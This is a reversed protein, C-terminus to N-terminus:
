SAYYWADREGEPTDRLRHLIDSALQKSDIPPDLPLGNSQAFNALALLNVGHWAYQGLKYPIMYQGVANALAKKAREARKDPTDFFIQKWARGMLGHAEGWEFSGTELRALYGELIDLASIARGQDIRSQAQLRRVEPREDSERRMQDTLQDLLAFER